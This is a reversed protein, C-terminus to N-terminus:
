NGPPYPPFQPSRLEEPVRICAGTVLGARAAMSTNSCQAGRVCWDLCAAWLRCTLTRAACCGERDLGPPQPCHHLQCGARPSSPSAVGNVAQKNM